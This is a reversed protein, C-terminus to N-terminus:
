PSFIQNTPAADSESEVSRPVLSLQQPIEFSPPQPFHIKISLEFEPKFYNM